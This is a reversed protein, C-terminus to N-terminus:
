TSPQLDSEVGLVKARRNPHAPCASSGSASQHRPTVEVPPDALAEGRHSRSVHVAKFSVAPDIAVVTRRM